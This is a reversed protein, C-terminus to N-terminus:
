SVAFQMCYSHLVIVGGLTEVITQEVNGFIARTWGDTM